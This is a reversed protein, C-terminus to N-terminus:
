QLLYIIFLKVFFNYYNHLALTDCMECVCVCVCVYVYFYTVRFWCFVYM